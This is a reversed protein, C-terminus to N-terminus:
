ARRPRNSDPPCNRIGDMLLDFLRTALDRQHEGTAIMIIGGMGMLLDNASLDGRLSGEAVGADLLRGVAGRLLDRSETRLGQRSALIAPLADHMAHKTFLYDLFKDMWMRLARPPPFEALLQETAAALRDTENRYTAEVLAERTPFRRYLTAIGVGADKAIAKLSASAGDLAFARAAAELLRDQNERADSRLPRALQSM